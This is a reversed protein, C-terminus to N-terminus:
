RAEPAPCPVPRCHPLSPGCEFSRFMSWMACCLFSLATIASLAGIVWRMCCLMNWFLRPQANSITWSEQEPERKSTRLKHKWLCRPHQPWHLLMPQQYQCCCSLLTDRLYISRSHECWSVRPPLQSRALFLYTIIHEPRCNSTLKGHECLAFRQKSSYGLSGFGTDITEIFCVHLICLYASHLVSLDWKDLYNCRQCTNRGSWGKPRRWHHHQCLTWVSWNTVWRPLPQPLMKEPKNWYDVYSIDYIIM